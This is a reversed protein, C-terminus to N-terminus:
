PSPASTSSGDAATWIWRTSPRLSGNRPTKMTPIAPSSIRAPMSMMKLLIRAWSAARPTTSPSSRAAWGRAPRHTSSGRISGETHPKMLPQISWMSRPRPPRARTLTPMCGATAPSAPLRSRGASAPFKSPALASRMIAQPCARWCAPTPISTPTRPRPLTTGTLSWSRAATSPLAASVSPSRRWVATKM